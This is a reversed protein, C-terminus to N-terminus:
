AKTEVNKKLKVSADGFITAEFLKLVAIFREMGEAEADDGDTFALAKFTRAANILIYHLSQKNGAKLSEGSLCYDDIAYRLATFNIHNLMDKMNGKSLVKPNHTLFKAYLHGLYRMEKRTTQRSGFINDNKSLKTFSWYGYTLIAPDTKCLIGIEDNRLTALINSKYSESLEVSPKQLMRMDTFQKPLGCNKSHRAVSEASVFAKCNNCMKLNKDKKERREREYLPNEKSVEEMNHKLIGQKKFGEFM